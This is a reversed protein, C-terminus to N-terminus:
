EGADPGHPGHHHKQMEVLVQKRQDPTLVQATQVLGQTVVSSTKDILQMSQQRLKEVQAPDVTPATMADAIQKRLAFHQQHLTKLQPRLGQWIAAIQSKQSPTAGVKDLIQQMRFAWRGGMPGAMPGGMPGGGDFSQAEAMPVAAAVTGAGLLLALGLWLGKRSRRPRNSRPNQEVTEM